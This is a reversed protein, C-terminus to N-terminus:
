KLYKNMDIGGARNGGIQNNFLNVNKNGGGVGMMM